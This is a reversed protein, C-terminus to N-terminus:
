WWEDLRKRDEFSCASLQRWYPRHLLDPPQAHYADLAPRPYGLPAGNTDRVAAIRHYRRHQYLARILAPAHRVFYGLAQPVHLLTRLYILPEIEQKLLLATNYEVEVNYARALQRQLGQAAARVDEDPSGDHRGLSWRWVELMRALEDDTLEYADLRGYRAFDSLDDKCFNAM